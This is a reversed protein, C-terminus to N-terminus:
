LSREGQHQPWNSNGFIWESIKVCLILKLLYAIDLRKSTPRGIAM